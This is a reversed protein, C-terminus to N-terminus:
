RAVDVYEAYDETGRVRVFGADQIAQQQEPLLQGLFAFVRRGGERRLAALSEDLQEVAPMSIMSVYPAVNVLGLEYAIRHGMPILILVREGPASGSEAVFRRADFRQIPSNPPGATGIRDIQSWPTPTQALSCASLALGALVAVEAVTPRRSARALLARVALIGLLALALMWASFLSILVEPHSRGAFYSSAGLGFVASWALMATLSRQRAGALARATAVVFAAAFTAYLVLHFGLTPMPLMTVGGVGWLRPFTFLYSLHPLSGAVALTLLAVLVLAGLLGLAADLALAGVRRWWPRADTWLLAVLTGAFAPMGFDPNNLVVVGAALFLPLARRPRVRDVHRVLLWALVYPGGYRMPFM